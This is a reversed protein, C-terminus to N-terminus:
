KQNRKLALALQKENLAIYESRASKVFSNPPITGSMIAGHMVWSEKGLVTNNALTANVGLFSNDGIDCWGSVVVHSSIFVNDRIVSDHGIHNGSWLIVNDGITVGPQIVNSEFVFIHEGLKASPSVFTHSSVYSALRYGKAKAEACCAARLRNMDQYVVCVHMDHGAPPYRHAVEDFPVVPLGQFEDKTMYSRDVTFAVVEYESDNTFYEHAIRSLDKDGFLVLKKSKIM